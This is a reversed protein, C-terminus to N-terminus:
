RCIAHGVENLLASSGARDSRIMPRRGGRLLHDGEFDDMMIPFLADDASKISATTGSM